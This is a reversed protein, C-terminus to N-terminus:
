SAYVRKVDHGSQRGQAAFRYGVEWLGLWYV